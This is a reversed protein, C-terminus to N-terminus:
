YCGWSRGMRDVDAHCGSGCGAFYLAADETQAAYLDSSLFAPNIHCAAGLPSEGHAGSVARRGPKVVDRVSFSRAWETQGFAVAPIGDAADSRGLCAGDM